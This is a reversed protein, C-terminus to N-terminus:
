KKRRAFTTKVFAVFILPTVKIFFDFDFLAKIKRNKKKKKKFFCQLCPIFIEQKSKRQFM